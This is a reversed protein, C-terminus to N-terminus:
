EERLGWLGANIYNYSIIVLEYMALEGHWTEKGEWSRLVELVSVEFSEDKKERDHAFNSSM